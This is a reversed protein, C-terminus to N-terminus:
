INYSVVSSSQPEVPSIIVMVCISLYGNCLEILDVYARVEQACRPSREFGAHIAYQNSLYLLTLPFEHAFSVAYM